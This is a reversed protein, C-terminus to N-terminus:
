RSKPPQPKKTEKGKAKVAQIVKKPFLLRAIDDNTMESVPKDKKTASM